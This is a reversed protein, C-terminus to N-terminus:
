ENTSTNNQSNLLHHTKVKNRLSNTDDYGVWNTSAYTYPVEHEPHWAYPADGVLWTYCIQIIYIVFTVPIENAM